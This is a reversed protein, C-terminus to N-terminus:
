KAQYSTFKISIKMGLTSYEKAQNNGFKVKSLLYDRNSKPPGVTLLLSITRMEINETPKTRSLLPDRKFTVYEFTLTLNNAKAGM